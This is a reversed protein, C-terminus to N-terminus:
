KFNGLFQVFKDMIDKFTDKETFMGLPIKGEDYWYLAELFGRFYGILVMSDIRIENNHTKDTIERVEKVLDTLLNAIEKFEEDKM